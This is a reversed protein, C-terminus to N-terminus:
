TKRGFPLCGCCRRPAVVPPSGVVGAGSGVASGPRAAAGGAGGGVGGAGVAFQPGGGGGAATGGPGPMTNIIQQIRVFEQEIGDMDVALDPPSSLPAAAHILRLSSLLRCASPAAPRAPIAGPAASYSACGRRCGCM